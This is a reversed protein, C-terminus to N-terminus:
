RAAPVEVRTFTFEGRQAEEELRVASSGVVTVGELLSLDALSEEIFVGRWVTDDSMVRTSRDTRQEEALLNPRPVSM